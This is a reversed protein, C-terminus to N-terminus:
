RVLIGRALFKELPVRRPFYRLTLDNHLEVILNQEQKAFLYQGPIKGADIAGFITAEFGEALLFETARRIEGQRVLLDLDGYRRMVPDGYAQMALVPGKVVLAPIDKAAFLDLRSVVGRDNAAHLFGLFLLPHRAVRKSNSNQRLGFVLM